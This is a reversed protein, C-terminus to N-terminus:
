ELGLMKKVKRYDPAFMGPSKPTIQQRGVIYELLDLVQERGEPTKVAERPTMGGLAPISDDIWQRLMKEELEAILEPPPIFPPEEPESSPDSESFVDDLGEEEIEVLRIRDGLLQELLQCCDDLRQRSMAEVKLITATVTLHALVRQGIPTSRAGPRTEFRAFHFSGDPEPEGDEDDAQFEDTQKLIQLIDELADHQYHANTFAFADGEPTVIQLSSAPSRAKTSKRSRRSRKRKKHRKKM